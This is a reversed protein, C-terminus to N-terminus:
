KKIGGIIKWVAKLTVASTKAISIGTVKTIAWATKMAVTMSKKGLAM